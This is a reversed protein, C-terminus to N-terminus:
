RGSKPLLLRIIAITCCLVVTAYGVRFLLFRTADATPEFTAAFGFACFAAAASLFIIGVLRFVLGNMARM